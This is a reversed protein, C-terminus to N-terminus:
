HCKRIPEDSNEKKELDKLHSGWYQAAAKITGRSVKSCASLLLEQVTEFAARVHADRFPDNGASDRVVAPFADTPHRVRLSPPIPWLSNV